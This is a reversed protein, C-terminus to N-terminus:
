LYFCYCPSIGRWIKWLEEVPAYYQYLSSILLINGDKWKKWWEKRDEFQEKISLIRSGAFRRIRKCLLVDVKAVKGDWWTFRKYIKEGFKNRLFYNLSHYRKWEM